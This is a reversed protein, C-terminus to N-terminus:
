TKEPGPMLRPAAEAVAALERKPFGKLLPLRIPNLAPLEVGM